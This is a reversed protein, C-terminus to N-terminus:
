QSRNFQLNQIGSDPIGYGQRVIRGVTRGSEIHPSTDIVGQGDARSLSLQNGGAERNMYAVAAQCRDQQRTGTEAMLVSQHQAVQGAQDIRVILALDENGTPVPAALRVLDLRTFADCLHYEHRDLLDSEHYNLFKLVAIATVASEAM